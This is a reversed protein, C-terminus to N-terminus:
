PHKHGGHDDKKPKPDPSTLKKPDITVGQEALKSAYKAPDKLLKDGCSACCFYIRQGTSLDTFVNPQIQEGSIPCRTQYTYSDALKAKFAGPHEAYKVQCEKSCFAIKHGNVDATLKGDVSKGDVPCSVQVRDLKELAARQATVKEAYKAPDKKFKPICMECCFYVPGDDTMTKVNFDVSEGMVPCVPLVKRQSDQGASGSRAGEDQAAPQGVHEQRAEAHQRGCPMGCQAMAVGGCGPMMWAMMAAVGTMMMWGNMM